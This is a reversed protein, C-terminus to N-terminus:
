MDHQSINFDTSGRGAEVSYAYFHKLAANVSFVWSRGHTGCSDVSQFQLVALTEESKTYKSVAPEWQVGNVVATGYEGSHWPDESPVEINRGRRFISGHDSTIRAM